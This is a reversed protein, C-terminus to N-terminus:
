ESLSRSQPYSPQDDVRTRGACPSSAPLEVRQLVCLESVCHSGPHIDTEVVTSDVRLKSGDELGLEVAFKNPKYIM